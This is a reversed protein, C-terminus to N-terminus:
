PSAYTGIFNLIRKEVQLGNKESFLQTGHASGPYIEMEKPENAAAFMRKTDEVFRDGESNIFLVPAQISQIDQETLTLAPWDPWDLPASLIVVAALEEVLAAKASAMGGLSAGVLVVEGAEEGRVFEIAALLDEAAKGRLNNRDASRGSWFRFNFTLALYGQNAASRAMSEWSKQRSGSMHSFIVATTGDGYLTGQLEVGDSTAIFVERAEVGQPSAVQTLDPLNTEAATHNATESPAPSEGPPITEAIPAQAPLLSCASLFLLWESLILVPKRAHLHAFSRPHDLGRSFPMATEEKAGM